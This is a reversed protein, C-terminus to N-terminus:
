AHEFVGLKELVRAHISYDPAEEMSLVWKSSFTGLVSGRFLLNRVRNGRSIAYMRHFAKSSGIAEKPALAKVVEDFSPYRNKIMNAFDVSISVDIGDDRQDGDNRKFKLRTPHTSCLVERRADRSVYLCNKGNNVYGLLVASIDFVDETVKVTNWGAKPDLRKIKVQDEALGPPIHVLVPEGKYRVICGELKRQMDQFNFFKEAM